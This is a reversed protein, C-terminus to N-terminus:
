WKSLLSKELRRSARIKLKEIFDSAKQFERLEHREDHSLTNAEDAATLAAVRQQTAESHTFHLIQTLSPASTLFDFIEDYAAQM